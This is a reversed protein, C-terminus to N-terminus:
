IVGCDIVVCCHVGRWGNVEDSVADFVDQFNLVGDRDFDRAYFTGRATEELAQLLRERDFTARASGVPSAPAALATTVSRPSSFSLTSDRETMLGNHNHRITDPSASHLAALTTTATPPSASEANFSAPSGVYTPSAVLAIPPLTMPNVAPSFTYAAAVPASPMPKIVILNTLAPANLM